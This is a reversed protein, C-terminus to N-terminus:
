QIILATELRNDNSFIARVLYIGETPNYLRIPSVTGSCNEKRFVLSGNPTYIEIAFSLNQENKLEVFFSGESPNPYCLMDHHSLKSQLDVEIPLTYDVGDLKLRYYSKAFRLPNTDAWSYSIAEDTSGCVSPYQYIESYSKGDSSREVSLDLCTSGSSMTWLVRVVRDNESPKVSFESVRSSQAFAFGSVLIWLTVMCSHFKM